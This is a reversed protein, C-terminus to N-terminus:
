RESAKKTKEIKKDIEKKPEKIENLDINLESVYEDFYALDELIEETVIKKVIKEEESKLKDINLVLNGNELKIELPKEGNKEFFSVSDLKGKLFKYEYKKQHFNEANSYCFQLKTEESKNICNYSLDNLFDEVFRETTFEIYDPNNRELIKGLCYFMNDLSHFGSALNGKQYEKFKEVENEDIGEVIIEENWSNNFMKLDCKGDKFNSFTVDTFEYTEGYEESLAALFGYTTMQGAEIEELSNTWSSAQLFDDTLYENEKLYEYPIKGNELDINPFNEKLKEVDEYVIISFLTFNEKKDVNM